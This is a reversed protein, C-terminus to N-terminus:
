KINTHKASAIRDITIGMFNKSNTNPHQKKNGTDAYIDYLIYFFTDKFGKKLAMTLKKFLIGSSSWTKLTPSSDRNHCMANIDVVQIQLYM